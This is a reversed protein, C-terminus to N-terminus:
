PAAPRRQVAIPTLVVRMVSLVPSLLTSASAGLGFARRVLKSAAAIRGSIGCLVPARGGIL